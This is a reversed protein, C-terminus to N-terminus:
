DLQGDSHRGSRGRLERLDGQSPRRRKGGYSEGYAELADRGKPSPQKDTLDSLSPRRPDRRNLEGAEDARGTNIRSTLRAADSNGDHSTVVLDPERSPMAHHAPLTRGGNHITPRLGGYSANVEQFEGFPHQQYTAFRTQQDSAAAYAGSASSHPNLMM